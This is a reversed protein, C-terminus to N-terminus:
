ALAGVIVAPLAGAVTALADLVDPTGHGMRDRVEKAVGFAVALGLAGAWMPQQLAHAILAGALGLAAGYAVHLAKDYPITPLMTNEQTV